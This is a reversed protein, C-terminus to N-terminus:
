IFLGIFWSLILILPCKVRRKNQSLLLYFMLQTVLKRYPSNKEYCFDIWKEAQGDMQGDKQIDIVLGRFGILIM